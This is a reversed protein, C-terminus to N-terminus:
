PCDCVGASMCTVLLQRDATTVRGDCDLDANYWDCNPYTALYLEEGLVALDFATLDAADIVGSCDVDGLRSVPDCTDPVGNGNLDITPDDAVDCGDHVGNGNCDLEPLIWRIQVDPPLLTSIAFRGTASHRAIGRAGIASPLRMLIDVTGTPTVRVIEGVSNAGLYDGTRYDKALTALPGAVGLDAILDVTGDLAVRFLKSNQDACILSGTTAEYLLASPNALPAGSAITQSSGDPLLEDITGDLARTFFIRGTSPEIAIGLVYAQGVDALETVTGDPAIQQIRWSTLTVLRAVVLNGTAPDQAGAFSGLAAFTTLTGDPALRRVETQDLLFLDESHTDSIIAAIGVLPAGSAITGLTRANECDDPIGNPDCDLVDGSLIECADYTNNGNCDTLVSLQCEDPIEDADCDTSTGSAIDCEDPIGNGNCDESYGSDLDCQDHLGNDNCDTECLDPVGSGDCDFVRGAAIDCSDPIGNGNCDPDSGDAIECVDGLGDHDCDAQDGNAHNPCNDCNDPLGDGDIDSGDGPGGLRVRVVRTAQQGIADFATIEIKGAAGKPVGNDLTWSITSPGQTGPHTQDVILTNGAYVRLRVTEIGYDDVAQLLLNNTGYPIVDCTVPDLITVKPPEDPVTFRVLDTGVGVYLQGRENTGIGITRDLLRLGQGDDWSGWEFLHDGALSFAQIRFNGTDTVYAIGYADDIAIGLPYAFEGPDRGSQGWEGAPTFTLGDRTWRQIRHNECDVVYIDGNSDLDIGQPFRFEGPGAGLSGFTTVRVPRDNRQKYQQRVNRLFRNQESAPMADFAAREKLFPVVEGELSQSVWLVDGEPIGADDLYNQDILDAVLQAVEGRYADGIRAAFLGSQSFRNPNDWLNEIDFVEIKSELANVVYLLGAAEDVAVDAAWSFNGLLQGFYERNYHSPVGGSFAQYGVSEDRLSPEWIEVKSATTIGGQGTATMHVAVYVKGRLDDVDAGGPLDFYDWFHGWIQNDAVSMGTPPHVVVCPNGLRGSYIYGDADVGMSAPIGAGYSAEPADNPVSRDYALIAADLQVPAPLEARFPVESNWFTSQRSIASLRFEYDGIEAAVFLVPISNGAFGLAVPLIEQSMEQYITQPNTWGNQWLARRRLTIAHQDATTALWLQGNSAQGVCFGSATKTGPAIPGIVTAPFFTETVDDYIIENLNTGDNAFISVKGSETCLQLRAEPWEDTWLPAFAYPSGTQWASGDWWQWEPGGPADGLYRAAYGQRSVEDSFTVLYRNSGDIHTVRVDHQDTATWDANAEFLLTARRCSADDDTGWDGAEYVLFGDEDCEIPDPDGATSDRTWRRWNPGSDTDTFLAATLGTKFQNAPGVQGVLIGTGSAPDFDFDGSNPPWSRLVPSMRNEAYAAGDSWQRFTSGDFRVSTDFGHANFSRSALRLRCNRAVGVYEGPRATSAYLQLGDLYMGYAHNISAPVLGPNAAWTPDSWLQWARDASLRGMVMGYNKSRFFYRLDGDDTRLLSMASPALVADAADVEFGGNVKIWPAIQPPGIPTTSGGGVIQSWAPGAGALISLLLATRATGSLCDRREAGVGISRDCCM